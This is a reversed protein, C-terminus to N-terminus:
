NKKKMNKTIMKKCHKETKKRKKINLEKQIEDILDENVDLSYNNNRKGYEETGM